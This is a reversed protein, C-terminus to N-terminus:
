RGPRAPPFRATEGAPLIIEVEEVLRQERLMLAAGKAAAAACAGTTYGHRLIKRSMPSKRYVPLPFIPVVLYQMERLM